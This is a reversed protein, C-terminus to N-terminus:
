PPRVVVAKVKGSMGFHIWIDKLKSLQCKTL